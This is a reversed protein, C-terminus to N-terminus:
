RHATAQAPEGYERRMANMSILWQKGYKCVDVGQVFKGYSVAKRLTSDSLKWITSADAFSIVNDFDTKKEKGGEWLEDCSLDVKDNWSIGYGGQDVKVHGFAENHITEFVPWKAFLPKVDYVKTTGDWFHVSLKYNPMPSVSNVKHFM